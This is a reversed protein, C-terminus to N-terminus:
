ESCTGDSSVVDDQIPKAKPFFKDIQPGLVEGQYLAGKVKFWPVLGPDIVQALYQQHKSNMCFCAYSAGLSVAAVALEGTPIVSYDIVQCDKITPHHALDGAMDGSDNNALDITFERLRM